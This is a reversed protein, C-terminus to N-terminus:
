SNSIELEGIRTTVVDTADHPNTGTVVYEYIGAAAAYLPSSWDGPGTPPTMTQPLVATNPDRPLLQFTITRNDEVTGKVVFGNPKAGGQQINTIAVGPPDAVYFPDVVDSGGDIGDVTRYVTLKYKGPNLYYDHIWVNPRPSNLTALTKGGADIQCWIKVDAGSVNVFTGVAKFVPRVTDNLKPSSIRPPDTVITLKSPHATM